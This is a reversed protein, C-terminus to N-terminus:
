GTDDEGICWISKSFDSPKTPGNAVGMNWYQLELAREEIENMERKNVAGKWDGALESDLMMIQSCTVCAGSMPDSAESAANRLSELLLKRDVNKRFDIQPLLEGIENLKALVKENKEVSKAKNVLRRLYQKPTMEVSIKPFTTM